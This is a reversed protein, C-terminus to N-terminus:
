NSNLTFLAIDSNSWSSLDKKSFSTWKMIKKLFLSISVSLGLIGFNRKFIIRNNVRNINKSKQKATM